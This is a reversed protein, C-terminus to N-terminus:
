AWGGFYSSRFQFNSIKM